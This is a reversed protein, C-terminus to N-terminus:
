RLNKSPSQLRQRNERTSATVTQHPIDSRRYNRSLPILLDQNISIRSSKLNNTKKLSSVTIGHRRAIAGLTDGKRVKYHAWRVRDKQPIGAIADAVVESDSAAVLLRHPGAPDTAWRKFGPNLM